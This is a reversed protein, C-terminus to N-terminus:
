KRISSEACTPPASLSESKDSTDSASSSYPVVRQPYVDAQLLWAERDSFYSLLCADSEPDMEGAWVVKSGDIDARNYVWEQDPPHGPAYRVIVLQKRARNQLWEEIGARAERHPEAAHEWYAVPIDLAVAEQKMATTLILFFPLGLVFAIGRPPSWRFLGAYIRRCGEAALAYIIPVVPGLHYPYLVMQLLNLGIILGLFIVLPRTARSRMMVPIFLLPITLLPGILFTWNDFLRTALNDILKDPSKYIDHHNVEKVYMSRLSPHRLVVKKPALFALNEPWGYTDRNVQYAMRLPSGTVRWCYYGTLLLGCGFVVGAPLLVRLAMRKRVLSPLIYLLSALSLLAGDFPRSNMLIILGLALCVAAFVRPGDNKLRPLSGILLAGGIAPVAGSM